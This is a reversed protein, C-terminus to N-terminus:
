FLSFRKKKEPQPMGMGGTNTLEQKITSKDETLGRFTSGGRARTGKNYVMPQSRHFMECWSLEYNITAQNATFWTLPVEAGKDLCRPCTTFQRDQTEFSCTVCRGLFIVKKEVDQYKIRNFQRPKCERLASLMSIKHYIMMMKRDKEDYFGLATENNFFEPLRNKLMQPSDDQMLEKVFVPDKRQLM